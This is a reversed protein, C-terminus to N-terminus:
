SVKWHSRLSSVYHRSFRWAVVIVENILINTAPSPLLIFLSTYIQELQKSLVLRAHGATAPQLRASVKEWSLEFLNVGRQLTHWQVYRTVQGNHWCLRFLPSLSNLVSLKSLLLRCYSHSAFKLRPHRAMKVFRGMLYRGANSTPFVPKVM